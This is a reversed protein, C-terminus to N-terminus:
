SLRLSSKRIVDDQLLSILFQRVTQDNFTVKTVRHGLRSIANASGNAERYILNFSVPWDLFTLEFIESILPANPHASPCRNTILEFAEKSDLEM